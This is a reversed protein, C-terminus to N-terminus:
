NYCTCNLRLKTLRDTTRRLNLYALLLIFVLYLHRLSSPRPNTAIAAYPALRVTIQEVADCYTHLM